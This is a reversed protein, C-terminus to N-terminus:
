YYNDLDGKGLLNILIVSFIFCLINLLMIASTPLWFQYGAQVNNLNCIFIFPNTLVQCNGLAWGALGIQVVGLAFMLFNIAAFYTLISKKQKATSYLGLIAIIMIVLASVAYLVLATIDL